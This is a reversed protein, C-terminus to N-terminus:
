SSTRKRKRKRVLDYFAALIFVAQLVIFIPDKISISYVELSLGGVIYFIDEQKRKKLLVGITILILGLIVFLKFVSIM